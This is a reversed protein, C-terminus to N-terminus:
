DAAMGTTQLVLPLSPFDIMSQMLQQRLTYKRNGAAVWIGVVRRTQPGIWNVLHQEVTVQDRSQIQSRRAIVDKVGIKV